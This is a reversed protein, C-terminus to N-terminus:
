LDSIGPNGIKSDTGGTKAAGSETSQGTGRTVKILRLRRQHGRSAASDAVYQQARLSCRCGDDNAVVRGRSGKASGNRGDKEGIELVSLKANMIEARIEQTLQYKWSFVTNIM